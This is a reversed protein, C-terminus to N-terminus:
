LVAFFLLRRLDTDPVLFPRRDRRGAAALRLRAVPPDIDLVIADAKILFIRFLDEIHEPPQMGIRFILTRSDPKRKALLDHLHVLTKNRRKAPRPLAGYKDYGKRETTHLM